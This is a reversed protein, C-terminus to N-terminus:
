WDCNVCTSIGAFKGVRKYMTVNSFPQGLIGDQIAWSRLRISNAAEPCRFPTSSDLLRRLDGDLGFGKQIREMLKRGQQYAFGLHEFIVANHYFLPEAFFLDHGRGSIFTEFTTAASSLLRLGRRIQGPSLGFNMAAIEASKNRYVAGLRTPTNDPLRDVDFRPSTPDNIIYMLIHFKGNITDTIHGYLVPDPFDKHHRVEIEVNSSGPPCNLRILDHGEEDYWTPSINFKNHLSAPIIKRYCERKEEWGLQNIGSITSPSSLVARPDSM